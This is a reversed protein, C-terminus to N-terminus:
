TACAISHAPKLTESGVSAAAAVGARLFAGIAGGFSLQVSLCPNGDGSVLLQSEQPAILNVTASHRSVLRTSGM